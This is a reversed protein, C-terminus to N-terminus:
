KQSTMARMYIAQAMRKASNGDVNPCFAEAIRRRGEKDQDPVELYNNISNILEERSYAVQTGNMSSIYQIHEFQSYDIGDPYAEQDNKAFSSRVDAIVIPTDVMAAEISVTGYFDLVVSSHYLNNALVLHESSATDGPISVNSKKPRNVKIQPNLTQYHQLDSETGHGPADGFYIGPHPRLLVQVPKIFLDHDIADVLTDLINPLNQHVVGAASSIFIVNRDPDLGHRLLWEERLEFSNRDFYVDFHPVGTVTVESEDYNFWKQADVKNGQSWVALYDPRELQWEKTTLHDWSNSACLIPIQHKKAYRMLYFEELGRGMSGVVVLDVKHDHFRKSYPNSFLVLRRILIWYRRMGELINPPIAKIVRFRSPNNRSIWEIRAKSSRNPIITQFFYLYVQNWQRSFYNLAKQRTRTFWNANLYLDIYTTSDSPNHKVIDSNEGDPTVIVVHCGKQGLQTIVGSYVMQRAFQGRAIPM